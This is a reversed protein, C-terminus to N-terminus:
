LEFGAKQFKEVVSTSMKKAEADMSPINKALVPLITDLREKLAREGPYQAGLFALRVLATNSTRPDLKDLNGELFDALEATSMSALIGESIPGALQAFGRTSQNCLERAAVAGVAPAALATATASWSCPSSALAGARLAPAALLAARVSTRLAMGGVLTSLHSPQRDRPRM